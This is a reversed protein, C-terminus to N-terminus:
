PAGTLPLLLTNVKEIVLDRQILYRAKEDPISLAERSLRSAQTVDVMM